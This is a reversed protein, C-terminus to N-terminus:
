QITSSALDAFIQIAHDQCTVQTLTRMQKMVAEKVAYHHPKVIIDRPLGDKWSRNELDDIRSLATELQDQLTQIMDTNQNSVATTLEQKNEITEM